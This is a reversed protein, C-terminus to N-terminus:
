NPTIRSSELSLKSAVLQVASRLADVSIPKCLFLEHSEQCRLLHEHGATQLIVPLTALKSNSQQRLWSLFQCGSVEPLCIDLLILDPLQQFILRGTAEFVTDTSIVSHGDAELIAKFVRRSQLDDEVVLITM